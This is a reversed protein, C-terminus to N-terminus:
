IQYVAFFRWYRFLTLCHLPFFLGRIPSLLIRGTAVCVFVSCLWTPELAQRWKWTLKKDENELIANLWCVQWGELNERSDGLKEDFRGTEQSISCWIERSNGVTAKLFAFILLNRWKRSTLISFLVFLPSLTRIQATRSDPDSCDLQHINFYSTYYNTLFWGIM